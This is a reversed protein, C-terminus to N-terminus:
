LEEEFIERIAERCKIWDTGHVFQSLDLKTTGRSCIVLSNWPLYLGDRLWPPVWLIRESSSNMLWGDEFCPHEGWGDLPEIEWVRITKDRSGSAVRKGDPAFAVSEVNSTHGKFPGAVTAGTHTDWVRLTSGVSGSVIRTGDPSFALSTVYGALEPFPEAAAAGRASDWLRVTSTPTDTSALYKSDPSFVLYRGDFTIYKEASHASELPGVLLAGTKFDWVRITGDMCQTAIQGGDPSFAICAVGNTNGDFSPSIADDGNSNLIRIINGNNWLVLAIHNGDPSFKCRSIGGYEAYSSTPGLEKEFLRTVVTGSKYNWIKLEGEGICVIREGDTSLSRSSMPGELELPGAVLLGTKSNWVQVAGSFSGTIIHEGDPSYSVSTVSDAHDPFEEIAAVKLEADWVRITSDVSGSVIRKGDPDFAVSTVPSQHGEFPGAIVSGNTSDWVRVTYDHSGSVIRTGDPSFAASYINRQHGEFPRGVAVGTASDWVRLTKDASGSVILNGDPAFSVCHIIDNHGEFPGAVLNGYLDWVRVTRDASGSAIRSGDPSFAVSRVPGTHGEFVRVVTGTMLDWLRFRKDDWYAFVLSNGDPSYMISLVHETGFPSGVLAGTNSDYRRITGSIYPSDDLFVSTEDFNPHNGIGVAIHQGDPSYAVAQIMMTHEKCMIVNGTESDWIRVTKDWSGSVIQKGDPSLAVSWIWHTYGQFVKLTSSWNNGLPGTFQAAQPFAPAFQKRISSERPAFPLASIYIHPASQSILPSFGGLFRIADQLLIQFVADTQPVYSRTIQLSEIATPVQNLLSLVELWYFFRINILGKLEALIENELGADELHKAWFSSAYKLEAPIHAEIRDSLDPVEANLVHSDELGCINFHPMRPSTSSCKLSPLIGASVFLLTMNEDVLLSILSEQSEADGCEDLADLIIIIPGLLHDQVAAIPDLLLRQFQTRIPATGLTM